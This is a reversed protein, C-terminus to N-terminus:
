LSSGAVCAKDLIPKTVQAELLVQTDPNTGYGLAYVVYAGKAVINTGPLLNGSTGKVILYRPVRAPGTGNGVQLEDSRGTFEGFKVYKRDSSDDEWDVQKYLPRSDNPNTDCFGRTEDLKSCAPEPAFSANGFKCSRTGTVPDMVDNVADNLAMEASQFALQRDRDNRSSKDGLLTVRASIVAMAVAMSMMLLVFVLAVGRERKRPNRRDAM